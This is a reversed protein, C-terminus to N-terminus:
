RWKYQAAAPFAILGKRFRPRNECPVGPIAGRGAQLPCGALGGRHHPQRKKRHPRYFRATVPDLCILFEDM